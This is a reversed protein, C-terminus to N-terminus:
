GGDWGERGGESLFMTTGAWCPPAGTLTMLAMYWLLGRPSPRRGEELIVLRLYTRKGERKGM